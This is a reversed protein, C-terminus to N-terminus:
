RRRQRTTKAKANSQTQAERPVGTEVWEFLGVFEDIAGETADMDMRKPNEGHSKAKEVDYRMFLRDITAPDGHWLVDFQFDSLEDIREAMNDEGMLELVRQLNERGQNLKKNFFKQTLNGLMQMSASQLGEETVFNQPGRNFRQYPGYVSSGQSQQVQARRQGVTMDVTPLQLNAMNADHQDAIRNNEAERRKYVNWTTKRIPTSLNSGVGIFQNSRHNFADLERIATQLQRSNYRKEIGPARRPDYKSGAIEAGTNQKTRSIKSGANARKRRYENRLDDIRTM